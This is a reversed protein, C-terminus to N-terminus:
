FHFLNIWSYLVVLEILISFWKDVLFHCCHSGLHTTLDIHLHICCWLLVQVTNQSLDTVLIFRYSGFFLFFKLSPKILLYSQLLDSKWHMSQQEFNNLSIHVKCQTEYRNCDSSSLLSIVAFVSIRCVDLVSIVSRRRVNCPRSISNCDCNLMTFLIM